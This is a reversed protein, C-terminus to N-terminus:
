YVIEVAEPKLWEGLKCVLEDHLSVNWREGLTIPATARGNDYLIQVPCPGERHPGLLDQLRRINAETTAAALQGNCHPRLGRAFRTRAAADHPRAHSHAYADTHKDARM